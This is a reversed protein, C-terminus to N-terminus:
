IGSKGIESQKALVMSRVGQELTYFENLNLSTRLRSIEACVSSSDGTRRPQFRIEPNPIALIRAASKVVDLVSTGVGSGVNIVKPLTETSEIIAVNAKAVDRVDVYDRVCTGDYTQYDDGYIEIPQNEILKKLVIPLLNGGSNDILESGNSGIVNFYRLVAGYNKEDNLFNLVLKEALLKSTGYPSIPSTEVDESVFDSGSTEGYVAASSAFIFKTIAKLKAINLISETGNVNVDFYLDPNEVSDAVSKLAATHVIGTVECNNLKNILLDRDRIDAQIYEIAQKHKRELFKIRSAKQTQEVDIVILKFRKELLLDSIHAGIYGNGGTIVWTENPM